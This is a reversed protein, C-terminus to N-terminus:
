EHWYLTVACLKEGTRSAIEASRRRKMSPNPVLSSLPCLYMGSPAKIKAVALGRYKHRLGM